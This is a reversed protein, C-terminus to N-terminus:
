ERQRELISDANARGIRVYTRNIMTWTKEDVHSKVARSFRAFDNQARATESTHLTHLLEIAKLLDGVDPVIIGAELATMAQDLLRNLKDGLAGSIRKAEVEHDLLGLVRATEVAWGLHELIHDDELSIHCRAHVDVRQPSLWNPFDERVFHNIFASLYEYDWGIIILTDIDRRAESRCISSIAFEPPAEFRALWEQPTLGAQLIPSDM